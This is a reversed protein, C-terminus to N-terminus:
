VCPLEQKVSDFIERFTSDFHIDGCGYVERLWQAVCHSYPSPSNDDSKPAYVEFLQLLTSDANLGHANNGTVKAHLDNLLEFYGMVLSPFVTYAGADKGLARSRERLNGPNRNRYSRSGPKWGEEVMIADAIAELVPVAM